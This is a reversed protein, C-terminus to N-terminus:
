RHSLQQGGAPLKKGTPQRQKQQSEAAPLQHTGTGAPAASGTAPADVQADATAPQARRFLEVTDPTVMWVIPPEYDATNIGLSQQLQVACQKLIVAPAAIVFVARWDTFGKGGRRKQEAASNQRGTAAIGDGRGHWEGFPQTRCVSSM